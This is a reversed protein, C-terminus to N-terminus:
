PLTARVSQLVCEGVAMGYYPGVKRDAANGKRLGAPVSYAAAHGAVLGLDGRHTHSSSPRRIGRWPSIGLAQPRGGIPM